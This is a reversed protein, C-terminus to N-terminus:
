SKITFLRTALLFVALGMITSIQNPGFGGTAAYNGSFNIIVEDMSPTYFLLYVAQAIVPMLLMLFVRQFDEKKIKKYYCYLASVGFCVPGALNFAVQKRFEFDYSMTFTVM